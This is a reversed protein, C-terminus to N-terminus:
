VETHECLSQGESPIPFDSLSFRQTSRDKHSIKFHPSRSGNAPSRILKRELDYNAVKGGRDIYFKVFRVEHQRDKSVLSDALGIYYLCIANKKRHVWNCYAGFERYVQGYKTFKWTM